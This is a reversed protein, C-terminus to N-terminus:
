TISLLQTFLYILLLLLLLSIQIFDPFCRNYLLEGTLLTIGARGFHLDRYEGLPDVLKGTMHSRIAVVIVGLASQDFENASSSSQQGVEHPFIHLPVPIEDPLEPQSFLFIM